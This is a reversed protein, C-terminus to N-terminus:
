PRRHPQTLTPLTLFNTPDRLPYSQKLAHSPLTLHKLPKYFILAKENLQILDPLLKNLFQRREHFGTRLTIHERQVKNEPTFRQRFERFLQLMEQTRCKSMFQNM